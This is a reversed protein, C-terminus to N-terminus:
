QIICIGFALVILYDNSHFQALPFGSMRTGISFVCWINKLPRFCLL